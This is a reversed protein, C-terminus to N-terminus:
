RHTRLRTSSPYELCLLQYSLLQNESRDESKNNTWSNLQVFDKASLKTIPMGDLAHWALGGEIIRELMRLRM